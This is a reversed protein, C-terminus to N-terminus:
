LLNLALFREVDYLAAQAPPSFQPAFLDFVHDVQPLEVYVVSAGAAWLAGYLTQVDDVSTIHDHAGQLLLTPPCAPRM